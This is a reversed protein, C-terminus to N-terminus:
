ASEKEYKHRDDVGLGKAEHELLFLICCGAHALHSEGTEPDKDEGASWLFLHRMAAGILRSWEFGRRWNHPSYKVAGKTLVRSIALLPGTPLLEMRPKGSDFKLAQDPELDTKTSEVTVELVKFQKKPFGLGGAEALFYQEEGERSVTYISDQYPHQFEHGQVCKVQLTM